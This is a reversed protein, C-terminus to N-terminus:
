IEVGVDLLECIGAVRPEFYSLKLFCAYAVYM